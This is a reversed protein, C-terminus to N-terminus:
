GLFPIHHQEQEWRLFIGTSTESVSPQLGCLLRSHLVVQLNFFLVGILKKLLVSVVIWIM